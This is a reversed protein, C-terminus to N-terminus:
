FTVSACISSNVLSTRLCLLKASRTGTISSCILSIM